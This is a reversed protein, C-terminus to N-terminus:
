TMIRQIPVTEVSVKSAAHPLPAFAECESVSDAEPLTPWGTPDEFAVVM